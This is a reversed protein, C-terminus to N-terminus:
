TSFCANNYTIHSIYEIHYPLLLANTVEIAIWKGYAVSFLPQREISNTVNSRNFTDTPGVESNLTLSVHTSVGPNNYVRYNSNAPHYYGMADGAHFEIGEDATLSMNLLWYTTNSDVNVETVDSERLVIQGVRTYINSDTFSPRWVQFLFENSGSEMLMSAMIRNLRGNCTFNATTVVVQANSRIRRVGQQQVNTNINDACQSLDGTM